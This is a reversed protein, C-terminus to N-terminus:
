MGWDKMQNLIAPIAFWTGGKGLAAVVSNFSAVDPCRCDLPSACSCFISICLYQVCDLSCFQHCEYMRAIKMEQLARQAGSSNGLEQFACLLFAYSKQDPRVGQEPMSQFFSMVEQWQQAIVLQKLMSNCASLQPKLGLSSAQQFLYQAEKLAKASECSRIALTYHIAGVAEDEDSAMMEALLSLAHAVFGGDACSHFLQLYISSNMKLGLRKVEDRLSFCMQHQKSTNCARMAQAYCEATTSCSDHLERLLEFAAQLANPNL